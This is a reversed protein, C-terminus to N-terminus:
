YLIINDILRVNGLKVAICAVASKAEEYNTIPQLTEADAIEFYELAMLPESAIETQVLNKLRAITHNDQLHKVKNLTKAILPALQREENNLRVNRSSMALGDAERVIPCVVLEVSLDLQRIMSKIIAVQQFDKQGFYARDPQVIRFLKSVVQAVGNFHGPRQAGEMVKDLTGFDVMKGEAWSKDEVKDKKRQLEIQTYM